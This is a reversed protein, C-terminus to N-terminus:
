QLRVYNEEGYYAMPWDKFARDPYNAYHRTVEAQAVYIRM